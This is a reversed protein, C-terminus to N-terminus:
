ISGSVLIGTSEVGNHELGNCGVGNSVIGNSLVGNSVVGNSVVGNSEVGNSHVGNSVAHVGNTALGCVESSLKEHLLRLAKEISSEPLQALVSLSLSFLTLAVM